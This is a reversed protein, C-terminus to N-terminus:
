NSCVFFAIVGAWFLTAVFYLQKLVLLNKTHRVLCYIRGRGYKFNKIKIM